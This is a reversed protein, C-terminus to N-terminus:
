RDLTSRSKDYIQATAFQAQKVYAQLSSKRERLEALALKTIHQKIEVTATALKSQQKAIKDVYVKKFTKSMNQVRYISATWKKLKQELKILDFYNTIASQFENSEYISLLYRTESTLPVINKYHQSSEGPNININRALQQKSFHELIADTTKGKKVSRIAVKIKKIEEKYTKIAAKYNKAAQKFGGLEAYAFPVALMSELVTTDSRDRDSLELWAALSLKHKDLDSYALGLYM